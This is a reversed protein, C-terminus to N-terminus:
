KTSDGSNPATGAFPCSKGAAFNQMMGGQRTMQQQMQELLAKHQAMKSALAKPDKENQLGTMSQMIKTMLESMQQHHQVMANFMGANWQGGNGQGMMGGGGMMGWRPQTTQTQSQTPAQNEPTTGQQALAGITGVSLAGALIAVGWMRAKM